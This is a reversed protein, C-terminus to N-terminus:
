DVRPSHKYSKGLYVEVVKSNHQIEEPSGETLVSGFDLVVIRPCLNMVLNMDHEVVLVSVGSQYIKRIVETVHKKEETNMGSAPEDLLLLKPKAALSIAIGLARQLGHPLNKAIQREWGSLGVFDLIRLAEEHSHKEEDRSKRSRVLAHGYGAKVQLHRGIITNELVSLDKFVNIKQFTRVLGRSAIENPLLHTIDEGRYHIKGSTPRLYGTILNYITTKGAGNPGILGVIEGEEMKFNMGGVAQLGGFNKTLNECVLFSM